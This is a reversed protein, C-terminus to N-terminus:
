RKGLKSYHSIRNDLEPMDCLTEKSFMGRSHDGTAANEHGILAWASDVLNSYKPNKLAECIFLQRPSNIDEGSIQFLAYRECLTRLRELQEETNRSPMYTVARFGLESIISFLEDLYSDEFSQARKDGTVSQAVDGLYAYASIAGIEDAFELAAKVPMCEADADIYFFRTDSKLIGLLDYDYHSNEPDNLRAELRPSVSMGLKDRVFGLVAPGRGYKRIIAQALGFLVHRETVSGGEEARSLSLVDRDFDLTIGMPATIENIRATMARNRKNREERYPAMFENVRDIADHPVGHLAMYAVGSQDPNNIRRSELPTGRFSVRMEMGVTTPLGMIEGAKIFEKAGSISDHDMLGATCLGAVCSLWVAKCPSYPSFSYITHIHNNIDTGRPTMTIEGADIMAKLESLAALREPPTPANLKEILANKKENIDM